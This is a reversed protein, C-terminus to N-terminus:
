NKIVKYMNMKTKAGNLSDKYNQSWVFCYNLKLQKRNDRM